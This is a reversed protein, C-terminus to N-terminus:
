GVVEPLEDLAATLNRPGDPTILVDAEYHVSLSGDATFIPWRGREGRIESSSLAIMPEVALLMGPAFRRTADPWEGPYSPEVNSIFPPAHLTRGYGHGGLGRVLCFRKEREVFGQVARAWDNLPRGPQMAAIGRRLSERGCAMLAKMVDDAHGIAYTWAADGIFGQRKVGIDIKLLDGRALPKRTMTHTGHVVCDNLSLCAHSPYPPTGRVRYHLFASTCGLDDLTRAVFGDVEPLTLGARLHGVLRRHTEVVCAAAAEALEIDRQATLLM